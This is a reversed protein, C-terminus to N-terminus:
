ETAAAPAAPLDVEPEPAEYPTILVLIGMEPHDMYLLKDDDIRSSQELKVLHEIQLAPKEIEPEVQELLASLDTPEQEGDMSEDTQEPCDATALTQEQQPEPFLPLEPWPQLKKALPKAGDQQVAQDVPEETPVPIFGAPIERLAAKWIDAQFHSYRSQYLRIAGELEFHDGTQRGGQILIWPAQKSTLRPQRWAQHFLVRYGPSRGLTYADPNLKRLEKGLLQYPREQPTEVPPEPETDLATEPAATDNYGPPEPTEMATVPCEVPVPEQRKKAPDELLVYNDPLALNIDRRAQENKYFDQQSFVIVEVQTDIVATEAVVLNAAALTLLATLLYRTMYYGKM